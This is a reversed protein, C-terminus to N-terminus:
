SDVTDKAVYLNILLCYVPKQSSKHGAICSVAM